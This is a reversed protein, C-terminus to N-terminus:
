RPRIAVVSRHRVHTGRRNVRVQVSHANGDVDDTAPRIGLLYYASTEELIREVATHAGVEVTFLSGGASASVRQLGLSRLNRDDSPSSGGRGGEAASYADLFASDLHLIYMVINSAAAYEGVRASVSGVDPRGGPRISWPLGASVVVLITRKQYVRMAEIVSFLGNLSGSVQAEMSNVLDRASPVVHEACIRNGAGCERATVDAIVIRDRAVIDAAESLSMRVMPSPPRQVRGGVSSWAALVRARDATPPISVGPAPYAVLGLEDEAPLRAIFRRVAELAASEQRVALSAQDIALVVTRHQPAPQSVVRVGSTSLESSTTDGQRIFDASVVERPRGGIRVMFDKSTLGQIPRGRDDVVQVDLAILDARSRFTTQKAVGVQSSLISVTTPWVAAM